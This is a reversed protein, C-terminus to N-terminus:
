SVFWAPNHLKPHVIHRELETIWRCRNLRDLANSCYQIARRIEKNRNQTKNNKTTTKKRAISYCICWPCLLTRINNIFRSGVVCSYLSYLSSITSRFNLQMTRNPTRTKPTQHTRIPSNSKHLLLFYIYINIYFSSCKNKACYSSFCLFVMRGDLKIYNFYRFYTKTCQM